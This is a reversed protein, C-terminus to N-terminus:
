WTIQENYMKKLIANIDNFVNKSDWNTNNYGASAPHSTFFKHNNDNVCDAWEQAQKGM